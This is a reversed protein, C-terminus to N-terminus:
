SLAWVVTVTVSVPQEGPRLVAAKAAVRGSSGAALDAAYPMPVPSTEVTETITRVSGLSRGALGAYQQARDKADAFAKTRADGLLGHDDTVDFSLGSVNVDNGSATAADSIARGAGKLPSIKATVTETADYGTVNGHEDYHPSLQMSATQVKRGSIGDKGLRHLVRSAATATADLAAQVSSRTVHVDFSATLTDPVGQVTGVGSVSVTDPGAAPTAAAAPRPAGGGVAALLVAVLAALGALTTVTVWPRPARLQITM